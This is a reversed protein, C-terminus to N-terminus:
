QGSATTKTARTLNVDLLFIITGFFFATEMRGLLNTLLSNVERPSLENLIKEALEAKNDVVTESTKKVLGFLRKKVVPKTEKLRKAGLILIAVIDGLIRCDKAVYLSESVVNKSDLEVVPLQSITESALILTALSPPNITYTEGGIHVESPTQLITESVKQEVTDM